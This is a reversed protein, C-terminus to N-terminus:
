RKVTVDGSKTHVSGSVKGCQIDGSMTSVSGNVDGATVDGMRTVISSKVSGGIEVNGVSVHIRDVDGEVFLKACADIKLTDLKGQVYINIVKDEVNVQAGNIYVRGDRVEVTRGENCVKTDNISIM